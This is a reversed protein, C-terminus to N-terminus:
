SRAIVPGRAPARPLGLDRAIREAAIKGSQVVMPMGAGPQVGGGVLYLGPVEPTYVLPRFAGGLINHANGLGYISGRFAHFRDRFAGPGMVQRSVTAARLGPYGSEELRALLREAHAEVVAPDEAAGPPLPPAGVVLFPNCGGPPADDPDTVSTVNLYLPPDSSYVGRVFIEDYVRESGPTLILVHHALDEWTRDCALQVTLFSSSPEAEGARLAQVSPSFAPGGRLMRHTHIYDSNSVVVDAPFLGASTAVGTVHGRADREIAEVEVGTEVRVGVDAAARAIARPIAGIGGTEPYWVGERIITWPIVVLSAPANRPDFGSYTPFGYMLERIAPSRFHADIEDAYKQRPSILAASLMLPSLLVQGWNELLRDCYAHGMLAAFRDVRALFRDLGAADAPEIAAFADRLGEATAPIDLVQGSTLVVKFAPDLRKLPLYADPDLGSAEFLSRYVWPMVVISPGEDWRYGGERRVSAKGGVEAHRELVTVELGRRALELSAALGGLGAGIVVARRRSM